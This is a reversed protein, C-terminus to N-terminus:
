SSLKMMKELKEEVDVFDSFRNILHIYSNLDSTSLETHEDIFLLTEIKKNYIKDMLMSELSDNDTRDLLLANYSKESLMSSCNIRNKAIDVHYGLDYLMNAMIKAETPNERYLLIAQEDSKISKYKPRHTLETGYFQKVVNIFKQLGIPKPIYEDMGAELYRERDGKLTNTTVAIIPTHDLKELKEYKLIEKTAIVGNMVPMQIDMFVIDYNHQKKFMEVAVKGNEASDSTIGISKLTHIILNQNVKNDEVVLAKLDFLKNSNKSSFAKRNRASIEISKKVKSFTIPEYLIQSFIPAIDLVKFRNDLKTLLVIQTTHSYQAVVRQLEEKNIEHYHVYLIDIEDEKADKCEVFSNLYILSLNKINSLYRKLHQNSTKEQADTPTYVGVTLEETTIDEILIDKQNLNLVFSLQSGEKEISELQLQGGLMQVWANSITLGLGIGGYARTNSNDAQTFAYFVKSQQEESIGIGTDDVLFRVSLSDEKQRIKKISVNVMGKAKTFKIANSILNMLVQKLKEADSEVLVSLFFPDIWLSFDIGQKSADLAYIDGLNEFEDVINFYSKELEISGNEIKSIDLINEVIDLLDESSKRITAVFESQESDLKTSSLIKTFGVIGNIPTRIEHSVNSLFLSKTKNAEDAMKKSEQLENIMDSILSYIETHNKEKLMKKFKDIKISDSSYKIEELLNALGQTNKNNEIFFYDRKLFVLLLSVFLIFSSIFMIVQHMFAENPNSLHTYNSYSSYLILLSTAVLLAFIFLTIVELRREEWM